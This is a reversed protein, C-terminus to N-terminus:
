TIIYNSQTNYKAWIVNKLVLHYYFFRNLLSSIIPNNNNQTSLHKGEM